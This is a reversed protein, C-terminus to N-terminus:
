RGEEGPGEERSLILIKNNNFGFIDHEEREIIKWSQRVGPVLVEVDVEDERVLLGVNEDGIVALQVEGLHRLIIPAVIDTDHGNRSDLSSLM